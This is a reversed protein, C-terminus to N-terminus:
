PGFMYGRGNYGNQFSPYCQPCKSNILKGDVFNHQHGHSCIEAEVTSGPLIGSRSMVPVQVPVNASLGLKQGYASQQFQQQPLPQFQVQPRIQFQQQIPPQFQVQPRIQFQQQPMYYSNDTVNMIFVNNVIKKSPKSPM